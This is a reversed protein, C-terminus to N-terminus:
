ETLSFIQNIQFCVYSSDIVKAGAELRWGRVELRQDRTEVRFCRIAICWGAWTAMLM